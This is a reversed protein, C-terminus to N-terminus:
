PFELPHSLPSIVKFRGKRLIFDSKSQKQNLLYKISRILIGQVDGEALETDEGFHGALPTHLPGGFGQM